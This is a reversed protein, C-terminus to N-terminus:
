REVTKSIYGYIGGILLGGGVINGATVFFLNRVYGVWSLVHTDHPGLLPVAMLTMNAISHEYGSAIFAFLCWFIAIMKAAEEKLRFAMWVALCVLMNCLIGRVFLESLSASMKTAAVGTIFTRFAENKLMGALVVLYALGISGLLNGFFSVVWVIGLDLLKVKKRMVGLIMVMNLGTFLESGAMIVLTLAIGFSAGMVLKVLPSRDAALPAGLSFILIIGLGVFVGAFLAALFYRVPYRRLFAAKVASADAITTVTESYM